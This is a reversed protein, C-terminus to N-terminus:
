IYYAIVPILIMIRCWSGVISKSEMRLKHVYGKGLGCSVCV